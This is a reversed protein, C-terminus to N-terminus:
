ITPITISIRIPTPILILTPRHPRRVCLPSWFMEREEFLSCVLPNSPPDPHPLNDPMKVTPLVNKSCPRSEGKRGGPDGFRFRNIRVNYAIVRGLWSPVPLQCGADTGSASRRLSVAVAVDGAV